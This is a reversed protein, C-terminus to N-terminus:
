FKVVIVGNILKVSGENPYLPMAAVEENQELVETDEIIEPEYGCYFKMYTTWSNDNIVCEWTYPEIVIEEFEKIEPWNADTKQSSNIFAVPLKDTYGDLSKIRTILTTFYSTAQSQMMEAKLYCVNAYRCYFVCVYILVILSVKYVINKKFDVYELLWILFVFLIIQSYMMLDYIFWRIVMVFIFNVALPVGALLLACQIGQRKSKSLLNIVLYISFILILLVVVRYGVAMGQPYMNYRLFDQDTTPSFFEKYALIIREIYGRVGPYDFNNIGKYDTLQQGLIWLSLQMFGLYFAMILVCSFGYYIVRKLFKKWEDQVEEVTIKFFYLLMISLAFPLWAQYIGIACGVLLSGAAMRWLRSYNKCILFSGWTSLLLGMLYFPATFMFGFIGVVVPFMVMIGSTIIISSDRKIELLNTILCGSVAIILFSVMGNFLPVSYQESGFLFRVGIDLLGLMWRGSTFTAGVHFMNHLDDYCSIKNFLMAGHAAIGWIITGLVFLKHRREIKNAM